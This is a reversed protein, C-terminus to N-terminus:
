TRDKVATRVDLEKLIRDIEAFSSPEFELELRGDAPVQRHCVHARGDIVTYAFVTAPQHRDVPPSRFGRQAPRGLPLISRLAGFVVFAEKGAPAEGTAIIEHQRWAPVDISRDCNICGLQTTSFVYAKLAHRDATGLSDARLVYRQLSKARETRWPALAGEHAEWLANNRARHRQLAPECLKNLWRQREEAKQRDWVEMREIYRQERAPLDALEGEYARM